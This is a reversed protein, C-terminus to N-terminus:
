IHCGARPVLGDVCGRRLAPRRVPGGQVM